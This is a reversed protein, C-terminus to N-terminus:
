ALCEAIRAQSIPIPFNVVINNRRCTRDWFPIIGMDPPAPIAKTPESAVPLDVSRASILPQSPSCKATSCIWAPLGCDVSRLRTGLKSTGAKREIRGDELDVWTSVWYAESSCDSGDRFSEGSIKAM